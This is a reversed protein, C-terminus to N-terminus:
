MIGLVTGLLGVFPATSGITALINLRDSLRDIELAVAAGMTTALRERTGDKDLARGGTSRRWETVGAAFVRATPHDEDGHLKYFADIDDTKRYDGEFRDAAKRAAAIRGRLSLIIAWTWISALVLGIMIAKVDWEAQMFLGLYSAGDFKLNAFWDM